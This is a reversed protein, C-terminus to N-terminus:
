QGGPYKIKRGQVLSIGAHDCGDITEVALTTIKTLTAQVDDEGLLVRAVDAFTEALEVPTQEM